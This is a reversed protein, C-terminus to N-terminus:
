EHGPFLLLAGVDCVMPPTVAHIAYARETKLMGGQSQMALLLSRCRGDPFLWRVREGLEEAMLAARHGSIDKTGKCEKKQRRMQKERKEREKKEEEQNFTGCVVVDYKLHASIKRLDLEIHGLSTLPSHGVLM